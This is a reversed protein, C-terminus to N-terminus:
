GEWVESFVQTVKKKEKKKRKRKKQIKTIYMYMLSSVQSIGVLLQVRFESSQNQRAFYIM